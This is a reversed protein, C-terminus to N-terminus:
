IKQNDVMLDFDNSLRRIDEQFPYKVIYNMDDETFVNDKKMQQMEYLKPLNAISRFRCACITRRNGRVYYSYQILKYRKEKKNYGLYLYLEKRNKAYLVGSVLNKVVRNDVIEKIDERDFLEPLTNDVIRNKLYWDEYDNVYFANPLDYVKSLLSNPFLQLCQRCLPQKFVEEIQTQLNLSQTPLIERGKGMLAITNYFYYVKYNGKLAFGLYLSLYMANEDNVVYFTGRNLQKVSVKIDLYM